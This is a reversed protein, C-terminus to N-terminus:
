SDELDSFAEYCEIYELSIKAKEKAGENRRKAAELKLRSSYLKYYAASLKDALEPAYEKCPDSIEKLDHACPMQYKHDVMKHLTTDIDKSEIVEGNALATLIKLGDDNNEVSVSPVKKRAM